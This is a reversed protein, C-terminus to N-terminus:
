SGMAAPLGTSATSTDAPQPWTATFTSGAGRQSHVRLTGGMAEMLQRTIILGLGTGPVSGREAGLRNFPEFLHALQEPGLGPGTDQVSVSVCPGELHVTVEVRGGAGTYKIANSLLNTLVQRAGRPDAVALAPQAFTAVQLRVAERTALPGLLSVCQLVLGGLDLTELELQLRGSEVRALDLVEDVLSLLLEGAQQIYQVNSQVSPLEMVQPDAQLLQSFGLVANLPTRLEHSMRSLFESKARSAAEAQGQALRAQELRMRTDIDQFTGYLRQCRGHAHEAIGIVRVWVVDGRTSRIQLELDFTEAREIAAALAARFHDRSPGETYFAIAGELDPEQGPQVGHIECTVESWHLRPAVLDAEWHGIRAIRNSLALIDQTRRLETEVRRQRTVDNLALVDVGAVDRASAVGLEVWRAGAGDPELELTVTQGTDRALAERLAERSSPPVAALLRQGPEAQAGLQARAARNLQVITGQSDLTLLGVPAREYLDAYRRLSRALEERAERLEENQQALEIQYLEISPLAEAAAPAEPLASPEPPRPGPAPPHKM